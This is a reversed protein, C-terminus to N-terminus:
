SYLSLWTVNFLGVHFVNPATVDILGLQAHFCGAMNPYIKTFFLHSLHPFRSIRICSNNVFWTNRSIRLEVSTLQLCAYSLKHRQVAAAYYVELM